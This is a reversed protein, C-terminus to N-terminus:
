HRRKKKKHTVFVGGKGLMLHVGRSQAGGKERGGTRGWVPVTKEACSLILRPEADRMTTIM